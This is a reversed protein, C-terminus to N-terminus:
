PVHARSGYRARTVQITMSLNAAKRLRLKKLLSKQSIKCGYLEIFRQHKKMLDILGDLWFRHRVCHGICIGLIAVGGGEKKKEGFDWLM